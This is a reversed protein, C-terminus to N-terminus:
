LIVYFNRINTCHGDCEAYLMEGGQGRFLEVVDCLHTFLHEKEFLINDTLVKVSDILVRNMDGELLVAPDERIQPKEVVTAVGYDTANEGGFPAPSIAEPDHGGRLLSGTFIVRGVADDEVRLSMGYREILFTTVNDYRFFEKFLSNGVFHHRFIKLRLQSKTSNKGGAEPSFGRGTEAPFVNEFYASTRKQLRIISRVNCGTLQEHM